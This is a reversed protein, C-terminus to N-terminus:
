RSFSWAGISSTAESSALSAARWIRSSSASMAASEGLTETRSSPLSARLGEKETPRGPSGARMRKAPMGIPWSNVESTSASNCVPPWGGLTSAATISCIL